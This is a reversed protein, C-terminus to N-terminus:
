GPPSDIVRCANFYSDCYYGPCCADEDDVDCPNDYCGPRCEGFYDDCYFGDCCGDDEADPDCADENVGCAAPCIGDKPCPDGSCCTVVKGTTNDFGCSQGSDACVPPIPECVDSDNCQLGPCCPPNPRGTKSCTETEKSCCLEDYGFKEVKTKDVSGIGGSGGGGGGGASGGGGGGGSEDHDLPSGSLEPLFLRSLFTFPLQPESRGMPTNGTAKEASSGGPITFPGTNDSKSILPITESWGTFSVITKRWTRSFFFFKIRLKGSVSGSLIDSLIIKAGYDYSLFFQYAQPSSFPFSPVGGVLQSVASIEPPIPRTDPTTALGLGVGASLPASIRALTLAGEIGVSASMGFANFGAGVFLTLGASAWPEVNAAVRALQEPQPTSGSSLNGRPSVLDTPLSFNLSFGGYIGYGAVAAIEITMPIPGIFFPANLITQSESRKFDAIPLEINAGGVIGNLKTVIGDRLAGTADGLASAASTIGLLEGFESSQYYDVFRNITVEPAEGEPCVGGLPFGGAAAIEEVGIQSCWDSPFQGNGNKIANYQNLLQQADRFAKKLRSAKNIFGDLKEQCVKAADHAVGGLAPDITDITPIFGILSLVDQGAVTLETDATSFRCREARVDAIARFIDADYDQGLFDDLTVHATLGARAHLSLESEGFALPNPKADFILDPIFEFKIPTNKGSQGHNNMAQDANEVKGTDQPVLHCWTHAPGSNQPPDSFGPSQTSDPPSDFFQSPTPPTPDLVSEPDKVATFVDGPGPCVQYQDCRTPFADPECQQRGCVVKAPCPATPTPLCLPDQRVARCLFGAGHATVCDQDRVCPVTDRIDILPCDESKPDHPCTSSGALPPNQAADHTNNFESDAYADLLSDLDDQEPLPAPGSYEPVCPGPSAPPPAPIPPGLPIKTREPPVFQCVYPLAQNCDNDIWRGDSARFAGCRQTGPEGTGWSNFRNLVKSGGAGGQWFQDGSDSGTKAWRWVNAAARSNAGIWASTIGLSKLTDGVLRNQEYTDIRALTMGKSACTSSATPWSRPTAPTPGNPKGCAWFVLGKSVIPFCDGNPRCANRNGCVGSGDCVANTQGPCAPDGCPTGAPKLTATGDCGCDGVDVNDPDDDCRDVCGMYPDSDRNTDPVGCGCVGPQFKNKDYPCGDFCDKKGDLDSDNLLKCVGCYRALDKAYQEEQAAGSLDPRLPVLSRCTSEPLGAAPIVAIPFRYGVKAQADLEVGKGAFFGTHQPPRHRLYITSFPSLVVGDFAVEVFVSNTGLFGVVIEPPDGDQSVIKSRLIITNSVYVIVPGATQDLEITAGTDFQLDNIYYTGSRLTVRSDLGARFLGYRGPDITVSEADNLVVDTPTTTPFTVTWSLTATPDFVPNNVSPGDIVVNNGKTVNQAWLGGRLHVRDRLNVQGRSWLANAWSDPELRAGGSGMAVIPATPLVDAFAGLVLSNSGELVPALASMGKPASLTITKTFAVSADTKAVESETQGGCGVLALSAVVLAGCWAWVALFGGSRSM